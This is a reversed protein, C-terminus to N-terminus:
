ELAILYPYRPQDGRQVDTELDALAGRIAWAVAEAGERTGESGWYVTALEHRDTALRDTVLRAAVAAADGGAAWIDGDADDIGVWDGPAVGGGPTEAAREARALRGSATRRAADSMPASGDGTSYALAAAIGQSASRTRVVEARGAERAAAKAAPWVNPHNPLLFVLDGPTRELARVLDGVAPNNGPGGRVVTAGLSRFIGELGAGEVVAVLPLRGVQEEEAERAGRAQGALCHRAVREDLSTVRVERPEGVARGAEVAADPDDTHVHVNYLGGGGVVVVSDGIRRLAERLSGLEGDATELLFMTEFGYRSGTTGPTDRHGVPGPPGARTRLDGGRIAARLADLLLVLGKGGADVVGADRLAALQDRTRVLSAEAAGFAGEAVAGVDGDGAREAADHLVSLITGEVPEAVASRALADARALAEALARGDAEGEGLRACLGRLIQSLIVGSNGRAGMLSARAITEGTEALSADSTKELAEVVAQQTLLMNTGTDGDPVPFVNLSDIEERHAELARAYLTMARRLTPADLTAGM